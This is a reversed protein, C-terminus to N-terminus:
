IQANFRVNIALQAKYDSALQERLRDIRILRSSSIAFGRGPEVMEGGTGIEHIARFDGRPDVVAIDGGPDVLTEVGLGGPDAAPVTQPFLQRSVM